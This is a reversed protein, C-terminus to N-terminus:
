GRRWFSCLAYLTGTGNAGSCDGVCWDRSQLIESRGEEEMSCTKYGSSHGEGGSYLCRHNGMLAPVSSSVGM